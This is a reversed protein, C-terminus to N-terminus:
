PKSKMNRYKCQKSPPTLIARGRTPCHRQLGCYNDLAACWLIKRRLIANPCRLEEVDSM